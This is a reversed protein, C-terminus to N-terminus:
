ILSKIGEYVGYIVGLGGTMMAVAFVACGDLTSKGSRRPPPPPKRGNPGPRVRPVKSVNV